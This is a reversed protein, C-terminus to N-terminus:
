EAKEKERFLTGLWKRTQYQRRQIAQECLGELITIYSLKDKVLVYRLLIMKEGAVKLEKLGRKLWRKQVWRVRRSEVVTSCCFYLSMHLHCIDPVPSRETLVETVAGWTPFAMMSTNCFVHFYYERIVLPRILCVERQLENQYKM